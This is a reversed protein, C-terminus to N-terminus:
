NTQARKNTFPPTVVVYQHREKLASSHRHTQIKFKRQRGPLGFLASCCLDCDDCFICGEKPLDHPIFLLSHQYGLLRPSALQSVTVFLQGDGVGNDKTTGTLRYDWRGMGRERSGRRGRVWKV